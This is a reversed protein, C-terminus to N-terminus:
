KIATIQEPTLNAATLIGYDYNLVTNVTLVTHFIMSANECDALASTTQGPVTCNFGLQFFNADELYMSDITTFIHNLLGATDPFCSLFM